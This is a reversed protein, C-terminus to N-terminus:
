PYEFSVERHSPEKSCGFCMNLSISLFIIVFKPVFFNALSSRYFLMKKCLPAQPIGGRSTCLYASSNFCSRLLTANTRSWTRAWLSAVTLRGTTLINKCLKKSMSIYQESNEFQLLHCNSVQDNMKPNMNYDYHKINM